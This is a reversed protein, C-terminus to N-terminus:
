RDVALVRRDVGSSPFRRDFTYVVGAQSARTAAWIMADAFSVRGSARCLMLAEVALSTPVDSMTLNSRGLLEVLLDVTTARAVGYLRTLVFATEVLTVSSITLADPGDILAQALAGQDPPDLTLYRVLISTDLMATV